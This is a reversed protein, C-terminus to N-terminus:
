IQVYNKWLTHKKTLQLVRMNKNENIKLNIEKFLLTIFLSHPLSLSKGNVLEHGCSISKGAGPGLQTDLVGIPNGM